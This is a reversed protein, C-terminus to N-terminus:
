QENNPTKNVPYSSVRIFNYQDGWTYVVGSQNLYMKWPMKQTGVINVAREVADDLKDYIDHVGNELFGAEDHVYVAWVKDM